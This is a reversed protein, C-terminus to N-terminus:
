LHMGRTAANLETHVDTGHALQCLPPLSGSGVAGSELYAHSNSGADDWSYTIVPQDFSYMSSHPDARPSFPQCNPSLPQPRPSLDFPPRTANSGTTSSHPNFPAALPNLTPEAPPNLAPQRPNFVFPAADPNFRSTLSTLSPLQPRQATQSQELHVGSTDSSQQPESDNIEVAETCHRSGTSSM